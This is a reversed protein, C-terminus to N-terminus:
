LWIQETKAKYRRPPNYSHVRGFIHERTGACVINLFYYNLFIWFIGFSKTPCIYDLIIGMFFDGSFLKLQLRPWLNALFSAIYVSYEESIQRKQGSTLSFWKTALTKGCNSYKTMKSRVFNPIEPGSKSNRFFDTYWTHKGGHAMLRRESSEWWKLNRSFCLEAKDQQADVHQHKVLM